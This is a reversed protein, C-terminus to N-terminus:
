KHTWSRAGLLPGARAMFDNLDAGLRRAYTELQARATSLGAPGTEEPVLDSLRSQELKEAELEAAAIQERLPMEDDMRSLAQRMTRLPGIFDRQLPWSHDLARTLLEDDLRSTWLCFLLLNVDAGTHAQLELCAAQVAPESYHALSFSWFDDPRNM